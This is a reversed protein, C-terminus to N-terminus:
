FTKITFSTFVFIAFIVWREFNKQKFLYVNITAAFLLLSMVTITVVSYATLTYKALYFLDAINANDIDNTFFLYLFMSIATASSVLLVAYNFAIKLFQKMAHDEFSFAIDFLQKISIYRKLQKLKIYFYRV